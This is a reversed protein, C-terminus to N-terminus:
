FISPATEVMGLIAGSPATEGGKLLALIRGGSVVSYLGFVSVYSEEYAKSFLTL